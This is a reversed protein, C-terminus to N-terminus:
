NSDSQLGQKLIKKGIEEGKLVAKYFERDLGSKLALRLNNAIKTRVTVPQPYEKRFSKFVVTSASISEALKLLYSKSLRQPTIYHQLSLDHFLGVGLGVDCACAALDNDGGSFLSNGKRDLQINRQGSDCLNKYFDAVEKRVFLGAGCPMTEPMHPFNSWSDREFERYVLLGWYKRTWPEPEKEFTLKVQGSWAGIHRNEEAIRHGVRLFDPAVINDDDVFVLLEGTSEAIGRLRAPTLGPKTERIVSAEPFHNLFIKVSEIETISPSSNNDIL